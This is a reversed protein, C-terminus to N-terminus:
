QSSVPSKYFSRLYLSQKETRESHNISPQIYYYIWFGLQDTGLLDQTSIFVIENRLTSEILFPITEPSHSNLSSSKNKEFLLKQKQLIEDQPSLQSLQTAGALAENKKGSLWLSYTKLFLNFHSQFGLDYAAQFYELAEPLKGHRALLLGTSSYASPLRPSAEISKEYLTAIEQFSPVPKLSLRLEAIDAYYCSKLDGVKQSTIAINLLLLLLTTSFFAPLPIRIDQQTPPFIHRLAALLVLCPFISLLTRPGFSSALSSIGIAGFSAIVALIMLLQDNSKKVTTKLLILPFAIFLSIWIILGVIGLEAAVQAPECHARNFISSFGVQSLYHWSPIEMLKERAKFNNLPFTGAGNGLLPHQKFQEWSIGLGLIRYKGAEGAQGIDYIRKTSDWDKLQGTLPSPILYLLSFVIILAFTGLIRVRMTHKDFDDSSKILIFGAAGLGLLGLILGYLPARQGMLLVALYGLFACILVANVRKGKHLWGFVFLLPVMGCLAEGVISRNYSLGLYPVYCGNLYYQYIVPLSLSLSWFSLMKFLLGRSSCFFVGAYFLIILLYQLWVGMHSLSTAASVSWNVSALAWLFYLSFCAIGFIQPRPFTIDPKTIILRALLLFWGMWIFLLSTFEANILGDYLSSAPGTTWRLWFCVPFWLFAITKLACDLGNILRTTRFFVMATYDEMFDLNTFCM